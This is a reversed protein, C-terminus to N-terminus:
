FILKIESGFRLIDDTKYPTQVYFHPLFMLSIPLRLRKQMNWGIGFNLGCTLHSTNAPTPLLDYESYERHALLYGVTLNIETILGNNGIRQRGFESSFQYGKHNGRHQYYALYAGSKWIKNIHKGNISNKITSSVIHDVGIKAGHMFVPELLNTINNYYSVSPQWNNPQYNNEQAISFNSIAIFSIILITIHKIKM